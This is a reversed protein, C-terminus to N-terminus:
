KLIYDDLTDVANKMNSTLKSVAMNNTLMKAICEYFIEEFDDTAGSLAPTRYTYPVMGDFADAFPVALGTKENFLGAAEDTYLFKIFEKALDSEKAEIPIYLEGTRAYGANEAGSKVAPMPLYKLELAKLAESVEKDESYKQVAEDYVKQADSFVGFAVDGKALACMLEVQSYSMSDLEVDQGYTLSDILKIANTVESDSWVSADIRYLSETKEMGVYSKLVPAVIARLTKLEEGAFGFLKTSSKLKDAFKVFKDFSSGFSSSDTLRASNYWIGELASGYPAIYTKGDGYPKCFATNYVGDALRGSIEAMVDSIDVMAKDKILAETVGSGEYSPLYVLDPSKGALIDDRLTKAIDSGSKLVVKVNSNAKEFEEAVANWFGKDGYSEYAYITLTVKEEPKSSEEKSSESSEEESSESSEEKSSELSSEPESSSSEPISSESSATENKGCGSFIGVVCMLALVVALIKKIM